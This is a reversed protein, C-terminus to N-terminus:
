HRYTEICSTTMSMDGFPLLILFPSHLFFITLDKGVKRPELFDRRGRKRTEQKQLNCFWFFVRQYLNYLDRHKTEM